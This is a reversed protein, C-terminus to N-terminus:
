KPSSQCVFPASCSEVSSNFFHFPSDKSINISTTHALFGFFKVQQNVPRLAGSVIEILLALKQRLVECSRGLLDALLLADVDPELRIIIVAVKSHCRERIVMDLM